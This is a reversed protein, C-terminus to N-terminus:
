LRVIPIDHEESIKRCYEASQEVGIVNCHFLARFATGTGAFLDVFTGDKPVSMAAIRSYIMQPHQTPHWSRREDNNGQVRPYDWVDDPIRGKGSARTDGMQERVSPVRESLIPKWGEQSIRLIPRYGNPADREHYQGFNFKWIFTRLNYGDPVLQYAMSMVEPIYRHYFSLWFVNFYAAQRIVSHLFRLYEGHPMQDTMGDYSLGLNDPPDAFGCDLPSNAPTWRTGDGLFLGRNM